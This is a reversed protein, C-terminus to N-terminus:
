PLSAGTSATWIDFWQERSLRSSLGALAEAIRELSQTGTVPVIGSPHRALFAFATGAATLEAEAGVRDLAERVRVAREGEDSFLSGGGLPSWAMPTVRHELASDLTGDEFPDLCLVSAEVQNVVLPMPLRSKLMAFHSPTFNSVGFSRVKGSEALQAFAEAVEDPDMLPDQRHLLFTDIRDTSLARLSNEASLVIHEASSDYVHRTHLPRRENVLKINCKTVIQLQDRLSPAERLAAGFSEEVTYGGYIDALDITTVGLDVVGQTWRTLEPASLGWSPLRWLGAALVSFEVSREM